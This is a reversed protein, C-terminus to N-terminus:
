LAAHASAGGPRSPAAHTQQHFQHGPLFGPPQLHLHCLSREDEWARNQRKRLRVWAAGAVTERLLYGGVRGAGERNRGVRQEPQKRGGLMSKGVVRVIELRKLALSQLRLFRYTVYILSQHLTIPTTSWACPLMTPGTHTSSKEVPAPFGCNSM